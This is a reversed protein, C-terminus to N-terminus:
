IFLTHITFIARGITRQKQHSRISQITVVYIYKKLRKCKMHRLYKLKVMTTIKVGITM